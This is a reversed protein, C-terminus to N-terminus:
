MDSEWGHPKTTSRSRVPDGCRSDVCASISATDKFEEWDIVHTYLDINLKSLLKAINSVAVESNWGNDLHVALPRLGVEKVKQAVFTSDVGGSIGIICDYPKEAGESRIAEVITKLRQQAEPASLIHAHVVNDYDHCHNCVGDQDFSINLDTTDMVCRTCVRYPDPPLSAPFSRDWSPQLMATSSQMIIAMM